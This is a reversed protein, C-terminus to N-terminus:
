YTSYSYVLYSTNVWGRSGGYYVYAWAGNSSYEIIQVTAGNPILRVVGSSTSASYRMNLGGQARVTYYSTSYSVYPKYDVLYTSSVWGYYSGYSVYSWGTITPSIGRVTVLSGNPINTIIGSGQSPLMRLNLGGQAKVYRNYAACYSVNGSVSPQQPTVTQQAPESSAPSDAGVLRIGSNTAEFTFTITNIKNLQLGLTDKISNFNVSADDTTIQAYSLTDGTVFDCVVSESSDYYIMYADLVFKKDGDKVCKAPEGYYTAYAGSSAAYSYLLYGKSTIMDGSRAIKEVSFRGAGWLENIRKQLQAVNYVKYSQSANDLKDFEEKTMIDSVSLDTGSISSTYTSNSNIEASTIEFWEFGIDNFEKESKAFLFSIAEGNNEKLMKYFFAEVDETTYESAAKREKGQKIEDATLTLTNISSDASVTVYTSYKNSDGDEVDLEYEGPILPYIEYCIPAGEVDTPVTKGEFKVKSNEPVTLTFSVCAPTTIRYTDFSLPGDEVMELTVELVEDNSGKIKYQKNGDDEGMESVKCDSASSFDAGLASADEECIESFREFTVYDTEAFFMQDYVAQWNEDQMNKAFKEVDGSSNKLLSFGFVGAVGVLIASVISIIIILPAKSKKDKGDAGAPGPINGGNTGGVGSPIPNNGNAGGMTPASTSGNNIDNAPATDAPAQEGCKTCFRGPTVEAGCKKCYM